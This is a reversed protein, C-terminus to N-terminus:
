DSSTSRGGIFSSDSGVGGINLSGATLRGEKGLTRTSRGGGCAILVYAVRGKGAIGCGKDPRRFLGEKIRLIDAGGGGSAGGSRIDDFRAGEEAFVTGTM